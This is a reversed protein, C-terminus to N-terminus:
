MGRVKRLYRAKAINGVATYCRRAHDIEGEQLAVEALQQWQAETEATLELPELIDVARQFDRNELASGFDILSEDLTYCVTNVGEDVIVDTRFLLFFHLPFFIQNNIIALHATSNFIRTYIALRRSM